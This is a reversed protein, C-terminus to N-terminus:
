IRRRRRIFLVAATLLGVVGAETGDSGTAGCSQAGGRFLGNDLALVKGPQNPADSIVTTASPKDDNAPDTETQKLSATNTISGATKAIVKITVTVTSGVAISGLACTITVGDSSSCSGQSAAASQFTVNVPLPDTVVADTSASPGANTVTLSYVITDGVVVNAASAIKVLKTNAQNVVTTTVTSTNDGPNDDSLRVTSATNTLQGPATATVKITIVIVQGATMGTITCDVTGSNFACQSGDDAAASVFTLGNPLVDEVIFSLTQPELANTVTISYSFTDGVQVQAASATKVISVNSGRFEYAGLDCVASGNADGDIPRTTLREDPNNRTDTCLASPAADIAPSGNILALVYDNWDSSASDSPAVHGLGTPGHIVGTQTCNGCNLVGILNTEGAVTPNVGYDTHVDDNTIIAPSTAHNENGFVISDALTVGAGTGSQDIGSGYPGSSGNNGSTNDAITSFYGTFSGYTSGYGPVVEVGGGANGGTNNAITSDYAIVASTMSGSQGVVYLGGGSLATNYLLSTRVLSLNTHQTFIGGGKSTAYAAGANGNRIVLGELSVSHAAGASEIDFVRTGSDQADVIVPGNGNTLNPQIVVDDTINLDGKTVDDTGTFAKLKYIGPPVKITNSGTCLNAQQIAARLTCTKNDTSICGAECNSLLPFDANNNVNFVQNPTCTPSCQAFATSGLVGFAGSLGSTLCVTFILRQM